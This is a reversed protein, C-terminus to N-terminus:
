SKKILLILDSEDGFELCENYSVDFARISTGSQLSERLTHIKEDTLECESLGLFDVGNKHLLPVIMKFCSSTMEPNYSLNLHKVKGEFINKTLSKLHEEIIGCNMLRLVEIPLKKMIDALSSFDQITTNHSLDLGILTKVLNTEDLNQSLERLFEESIDNESVNLIKSKCNSLIKCITPLLTSINKECNVSFERIYCFSNKFYSLINDTTLNVDRLAFELISSPISIVKSVFEITSKTVNMHAIQIENWHLVNQERCKEIMDYPTEVGDLFNTMIQEVALDRTTEKPMGVKSFTFDGTEKLTLHHRPLDRSNFIAKCKQIGTYVLLKLKELLDEMFTNLINKSGIFSQFFIIMVGSITNRRFYDDSTIGNISYTLFIPINCLSPLSTSKLQSNQLMEIVHTGGLYGMAIMGISDHTLGSFAIIKQPESDNPNFYRESTIVRDRPFLNERILPLLIRLPKCNEEKSIKKNHSKYDFIDPIDLVFLGKRPQQKIMESISIKEEEDLKTNQFILDEPTMNRKPDLNQCDLFFMPCIDGYETSQFSEMTRKKLKM